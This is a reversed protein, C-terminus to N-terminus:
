RIERVIMIYNNTSHDISMLRETKPRKNFIESGFLTCLFYFTIHIIKM